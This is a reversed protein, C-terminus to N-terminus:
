TSTMIDIGKKLLFVDIKIYAYACVIIVLLLSCIMGTMTQVTNQQGDLKM